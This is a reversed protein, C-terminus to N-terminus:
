LFQYAAPPQPLVAGSGAFSALMQWHTLPDKKALLIRMQHDHSEDDHHDSDHDAESSHDHDAHSHGDHHHHPGAHSFLTPETHAAGEHYMAEHAFTYTFSLVLMASLVRMTSKNNCNKM